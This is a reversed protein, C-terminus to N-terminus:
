SEGSTDATDQPLTTEQEQQEGEDHLSIGREALSQNLIDFIKKATQDHKCILGGSPWNIMANNDSLEDNTKITLHKGLEEAHEKIFGSLAAELKTNLELQLTDPTTKESLASKIANQLEDKGFTKMFQPFAKSFIVASLHVTENEFTAERNHEAAILADISQSIKQSIALLQNTINTESDQFGARKGEEFAAAKAAELEDRTFEPIAALEEESLEEEDDFNNTDFFFPQGKM